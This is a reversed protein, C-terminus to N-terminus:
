PSGERMRPWLLAKGDDSCPCNSPVGERPNTEGYDMCPAQATFEIPIWSQYRFLMVPKSALRKTEEVCQIALKTQFADPWVEYLELQRPDDDSASVMVGCTDPRLNRSLYGQLWACEFQRCGKPREAYIACGQKPLCDKCPQYYPKGLEAVGVIECCATCRGCTRQAQPPDNMVRAENDAPHEGRGHQSRTNEGLGALRCVADKVAKIGFRRASRQRHGPGLIV